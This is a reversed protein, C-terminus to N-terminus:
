PGNKLDGHCSHERCFQPEIPRAGQSSRLLHAAQYQAADAISNLGQIATFADPKESSRVARSTVTLLGLIRGMVCFPLLM